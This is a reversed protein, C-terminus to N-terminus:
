LFAKIMLESCYYSSQLVYNLYDSSVHFPRLRVLYGAYIAPREAKYISVKGVLESSNTRNFLLDNKELQYKKIDDDDNTYVLNSYDITGSQLNGMRLVPMKGSKLSKKATGYQIHICLDGLRAWCWNEPIEFPAEDDAIPPLAKEKKLKGARVLQAKGKKIAALLDRADGDDARQETLQGAIAAQLILKRLATALMM